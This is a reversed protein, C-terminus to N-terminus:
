WNPSTYKREQVLRARLLALAGAVNGSLDAETWFVVSPRNHEDITNETIRGHEMMDGFVADIGGAGTWVWEQIGGERADWIFRRFRWVGELKEGNNEITVESIEFFDYLDMDYGNERGPTKPRSTKSM